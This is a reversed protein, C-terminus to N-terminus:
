IAEDKATKMAAAGAMISKEINLYGTCRCLNGHLGERILETTLTEHREALGIAAMIMGTTCFGCQLGHYRIFAEQMPHLQGQNEVDEITKIDHGSAQVALVTCAKVPRSDMHVTCCGCQSTDCGIHPGTLGLDERLFDVLLLRPEVEDEIKRGNVTLTIPALIDSM